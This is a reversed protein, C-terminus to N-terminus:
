STISSTARAAVLRGALPRRLQGGPPPRPVRPRARRPRGERPLDALGAERERGRDARRRHQAAAPHDPQRREVLQRVDRADPGRAQGGRRPRGGHPRRDPRDGPQDAPRPEPQDPRLVAPRLAPGRAHGDPPRRLPADPVVGQLAAPDPAADGEPQAHVLRPQHRPRRVQPLARADREGEWPHGKSREYWDRWRTWATPTPRPSSCCSRRTSSRAPRRTTAAHGARAAAGDGDLDLGDREFPDLLHHRRGAQEGRGARRREDGTELRAPRRAASSARYRDLDASRRPARSSRRRPLAPGRDDRRADPRPRPRLRPRRGRLLRRGAGLDGAPLRGRPPLRPPGRPDPVPPAEARASGPAGTTLLLALVLPATTPFTCLGRTPRSM